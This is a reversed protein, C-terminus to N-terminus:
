ELRSFTFRPDELNKKDFSGIEFINIREILGTIEIELKDDTCNQEFRPYIIRVEFQYPLNDFGNVGNSLLINRPIPNTDREFFGNLTNYDRIDKLLAVFGPFTFDITEQYQSSVFNTIM